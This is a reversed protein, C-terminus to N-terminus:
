TSDIYHIINRTYLTCISYYIHFRFDHFVVKLLNLIIFLPPGKDKNQKSFTFYLLSLTGARFEKKCM